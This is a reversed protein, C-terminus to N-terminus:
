PIQDSRVNQSIVFKLMGAAVLRELARHTASLPASLFADLDLRPPPVNRRECDAKLEWYGPGTPLKTGASIVHARLSSWM